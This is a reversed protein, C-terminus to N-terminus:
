RAPEVLKALSPIQRAMEDRVAEAKKQFGSESDGKKYPFFTYGDFGPTTSLTGAKEEGTKVNISITTKLDFSDNPKLVDVTATASHDNALTQLVQFNKSDSKYDADM